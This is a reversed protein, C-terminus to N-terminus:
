EAAGKCAAEDGLQCARRLWARAQAPDKAVGHGDRHLGALNVCAIPNGGSCAVEYLEAARAFNRPM